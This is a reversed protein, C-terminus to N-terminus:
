LLDCVLKSKNSKVPHRSRLSLYFSNQTKASMRSLLLIMLSSHRFSTPM